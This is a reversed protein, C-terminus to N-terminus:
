RTKPLLCSSHVIRGPWTVAVPSVAELAITSSAPLTPENKRTSSTGHRRAEWTGPYSAVFRVFAVFSPGNFSALALKNTASEPFRVERM